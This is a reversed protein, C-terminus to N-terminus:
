RITYTTVPTTAGVAPAAVSQVVAPEWTFTGPSVVRASYGLTFDRVKGPELCWSVRQGAVEWPALISRPVDPDDPWGPIGVVPALGSPTRDTVEWWGTPAKPDFVVRLKVKVLGTTPADGAPTVTRGITVLGGSPLDGPGPTRTWSAVVAVDGSLTELRFGERQGETLVTSWSAGPELSEERRAGDVTWAFRAGARPLRDLSWRIVGIEPLVFIAERTQMERVYRDLRPALPDGIATAVLALMATAEMTTAMSEGADLRVWPGLEQGHQELLVREITRAGNEDGLAVLGLAVWLTERVTVADIDVARLDDLVDDGLGALGALAIIQRERTSSGDRFWEDLAQRAWSADIREPAIVATMATLSEDPSSYPLLAVGGRQYPEADFTAPPLTAADLGFTGILLERAIDAALLRDFRAGGGYALDQLRPVLSGRGADTVVYTTLGTGGRGAAAAPTTVETTAIELRSSRVVIKRVLTDTRTADGIVTAKITVEHVGLSLPPLQVGATAFAAADVSTPEMLLSPASVTFRVRAGTELGDGFSRVGLVPTEGALYEPALIADAFFPLGVPVLVLGSGARLDNAIATASIHWSTLDDPLDFSVRARGDTDTSLLRFVISDRFDDRGGTTDGCGYGGEPLPVPHSAYSQLLGDGVPALLMALADVDFAYGIRFLKEDVGRIVVDTSVPRGDADTTTVTVTARDGPAYRSRDTTLEVDLAREAKRTRILAENTVLYIGDLYRVALVNLSPLDTERYTRTLTSSEQLAAERIGRAAVVFLYRGNASLTGDGDHVALSITDGVAHDEAYWGCGGPGGLYPRGPDRDALRENVPAAYLTTSGTRGTGDRSSLTIEYSHDGNAVPVSLSIAGGAGSRSTYTGVPRTDYSYEFTPVVRKEIYDYTTGVQKRVPVNEVIRITVTGGIVPDGSPDEPWTGLELDREVRGLDVRSLTGGVVVHGDRVEGSGELWVAAPVVVVETSGSIQGEEPSAPAVGISKFTLGSGDTRAPVTLTVRGEGDATLVRSEGFAEVRLDMGAASTGDFFVARSTITVPDGAIAARRDTEVDIAYAPKRIEAVEIWGSRAVIGHAHLELVYSGVPLDDLEVDTAWTGRSTATLPIRALWPGDESSAESPRLTLELGPPVSGDDRSRILGWAHVTDTSRYTTRDTSLLLWWRHSPEAAQSWGDREYNYAYSNAQLGLPLLLRRGDPARVSVLTTAAVGYTGPERLLSAPTAVDLLGNSGTAGIRAGDPGALVAGAVPAGTARDNVWALTRTESTLAFATLDTVQLLAQRDRGERPVVVLYWGAALPAPFRVVRYGNPSTIEFTGDFAAVRTLGEAAVLEGAAWMGWGTQTALTAAATAAADFSPLRYVEFSVSKIQNTPSGDGDLVDLAIIPREGTPAELIPRGLSVDWLGDKRGATEFAFTLPAELVQDSGAMAVGAAITVRYITALDLPQDPAFVISRGHVEFRGVVAPDISFQAGFDTVGDQDFEIEIGTDVPVDTTQDMPVTGVVHLPRETRYAWSGALAGTPDALRFRYLVDRSLPSTPVLRAEAPSTGSQVRFEVAPEATLGAALDVAPVDTRSRLIFASALAVGSADLDEPSLDAVPEWDPIALDGWAGDPPLTAEPTATPAPTAAPAGSVTPETSPHPRASPLATMVLAVAVIVTLVGIGTRSTLWPRWENRVRRGIARWGSLPGGQTSM